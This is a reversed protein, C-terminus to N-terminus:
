KTRTGSDAIPRGLLSPLGFSFNLGEDIVTPPLETRAFISGNSAFQVITLEVSGDHPISERIGRSVAEAILSWETSNMTASGDIVLCLQVDVNPAAKCTGVLMGM